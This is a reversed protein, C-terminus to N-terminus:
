YPAKVLKYGQQKAYSVAQKKTNWADIDHHLGKSDIEVISYFKGSESKRIFATKM